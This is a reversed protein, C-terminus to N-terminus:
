DNKDNEPLSFVDNLPAVFKTNCLVYDPVYRNLKLSCNELEYFLYITFLFLFRWFADDDTINLVNKREGSGSPVTFLKGSNSLHATHKLASM